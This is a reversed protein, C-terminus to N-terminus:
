CTGAYSNLKMQSAIETGPDMTGWFEPGNNRCPNPPLIMRPSIAQMHSLNDWPLAIQLWWESPLYALTSLVALHPRAHPM